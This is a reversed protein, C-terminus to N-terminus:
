SRGRQANRQAPGEAQGDNDDDEPLEIPDIEGNGDKDLPYPCSEDAALSQRAEEATVVGSQIDTQRTKADQARVDSREKESLQYLPVFEFDIADDIVGFLSLQIIEILRKLPKRMVDEQTAHVDDYYMRIEGESSANLGDAGKRLLKVRPQRAVVCLEELAQDKLDKLGALPTNIQELEETEKNLAFIGNNDRLRAFVRLRNTLNQNVLGQMGSGMDTKLATCSYSRLMKAVYDRTRQWNVVYDNALQTLSLGGFNYVPKLIDPVPRSIFTLLRSDHVEDGQCYWIQPQYFNGKLPSDTNYPGPFLWRPEIVRLAVISDHPIKRPDLFLESACESDARSANSGKPTKVEIYLTGRGFYCDDELAQRFRARADLRRLESEIKQIKDVRDGSEVAKVKIWKRTMDNASVEAMTRYEPEQMKQGLWDYGKFVHVGAYLMRADMPLADSAMSMARDRKGEPVVGLPPEYPKLMNSAAEVADDNDLIGLFQGIPMGANEKVHDVVPAPDHQKKRRPWM